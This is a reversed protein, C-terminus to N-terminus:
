VSLGDAKCLLPKKDILYLELIEDLPAGKARAAFGKGTKFFTWCQTEIGGEYNFCFLDEHTFWVGDECSGDSYRWKSRRGKYFHEAGYAKGDKSFYLTKGTSLAEFESPSVITEASAPSFALVAILSLYKM